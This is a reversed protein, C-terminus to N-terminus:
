CVNENPCAVAQDVRKTYMWGVGLALRDLKTNGAKSIVAFRHVVVQNPNMSAYVQWATSSGDADYRGDGPTGSTDNSASEAGATLVRLGVHLRHLGRSAM